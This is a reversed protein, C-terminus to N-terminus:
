DRPTLRETGNGNQGRIAWLGDLGKDDVQYIVLGPQDNITYTAALVDNMRMGFGTYTSGAINWRITFTKKSIVDVTVTGSYKSGDANTGSVEYHSSLALPEASAPVAFTLGLVLAAAFRNVFVEQPSRTFTPQDAGVATGSRCCQERAAVRQSLV